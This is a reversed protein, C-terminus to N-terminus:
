DVLVAPQPQGFWAPPQVSAVTTAHAPVGPPQRTADVFTAGVILTIVAAAAACTVDRGLTSVFTNM